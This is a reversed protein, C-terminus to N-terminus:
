CHFVGMDCGVKGRGSFVYLGGGFLDVAMCDDHLLFDVGEVSVVRIVPVEMLDGACFRELVVDVVAVGVELLGDVVGEMLEAQDGFSVGLFFGCFQSLFDVVEELLLFLAFRFIAFEEGPDVDKNGM